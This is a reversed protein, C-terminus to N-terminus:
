HVSLRVGRAESPGVLRSYLAAGGRRTIGAPWCALAGPSRSSEHNRRPLYECGEGVLARAHLRQAPTLANHSEFGCGTGVRLAQRGPTYVRHSFTRVGERSLVRCLYIGRPREEVRMECRVPSVCVIAGAGWGACVGSVYGVRGIHRRRPSM